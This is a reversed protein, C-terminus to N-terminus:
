HCDFFDQFSTVIIYKAGAAEVQKQFEKQAPSQRDKGNKYVRKLEIYISEGRWTATMDSHGTKFNNNKRFEVSGITRNFGVADVYTQRNDIRVASSDTIASIGGTLEIFLNIRKLERKEPSSTRFTNPQGFTRVSKPLVASPTGLDSVFATM